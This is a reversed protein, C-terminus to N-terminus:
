AGTGSTGSTGSNGTTDTGSTSSTGDTNTDGQAVAFAGNLLGELISNLGTQISDMAAARFTASTTDDCGSALPLTLALLALTAGILGFSRKSAWGHISKSAAKRM